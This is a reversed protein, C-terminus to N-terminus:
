KKPPALMKLQGKAPQQDVAILEVTSKVQDLHARFHRPNGTLMYRANLRHAIAAICADVKIADRSEEKPKKLMSPRCMEGAIRAAQEDLAEVRLGGLAVLIRAAAEAGDGDRSMEVIVPAPVVFTVGERHLEKMRDQTRLIRQQTVKDEENEAASALLILVSTDIVGIISAM